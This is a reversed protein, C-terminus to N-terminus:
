PGLRSAQSGAALRVSLSTVQDGIRASALVQGVPILRRAPYGEDGQETRQCDMLLGERHRPTELGARAVSAQAISLAMSRLGIAYDGHCLEIYERSTTCSGCGDVPLM